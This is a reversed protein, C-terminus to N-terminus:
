VFQFLVHFCNRGHIDLFLRRGSGVVNIVESKFIRNLSIEAVVINELDDCLVNNESEGYLGKLNCEFMM